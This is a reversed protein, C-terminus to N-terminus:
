ATCMSGMRWEYFKKVGAFHICVAVFIFVHWLQHSHFFIDYKGPQWREPVQLCYIVAGCIYMASMAIIYALLWRAHNNLFLMHTLPVAGASAVCFFLVVRLQRFKIQRFTPLLSVFCGSVGTLIDVVLYVIQLTPQCFFGYHILPVTSGAILLFIGAYDLSQFNDAVRGSVAQFTHFFTSFMMCCIASLMYIILPWIPLFTQVRKISPDNWVPLLNFDVTDTGVPEASTSNNASTVRFEHILQGAAQVTDFKEPEPPFLAAWRAVVGDRADQLMQMAKQESESLAKAFSKLDQDLTNLYQLWDRKTEELRSESAAMMVEAQQKLSRTVAALNPLHTRLSDMAQQVNARMKASNESLSQMITMSSASTEFCVPHFPSMAPPINCMPPSNLLRMNLQLYDIGHPSLTSATIIMLIAVFIFGLM